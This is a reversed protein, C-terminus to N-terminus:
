FLFSTSKYSIRIIECGENNYSYKFPYVILALHKDATTACEIFDGYNDLFEQTVFVYDDIECDRIHYDRQFERGFIKNFSAKIVAKVAKGSSNLSASTANRSLNLSASSGSFSM